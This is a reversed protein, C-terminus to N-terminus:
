LTTAKRYKKGDSGFYNTVIEQILLILLYKVPLLVTKYVTAFLLFLLATLAGTIPGAIAIQKANTKNVNKIRTAALFIFPLPIFIPLSPEAKTTKAAFYHGMEHAFLVLLIIFIFSNHIITYNIAAVAILSLITCTLQTLKQKRNRRM